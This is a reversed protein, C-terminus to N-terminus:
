AQQREAEQVGAGVRARDAALAAIAAGLRGSVHGL